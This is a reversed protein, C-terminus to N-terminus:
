KNPKNQPLKTGKLQRTKVQFSEEGVNVVDKVEGSPEEPSELGCSCLLVILQQADTLLATGLASEHWCGRQLWPDRSSKQGASLSHKPAADPEAWCPHLAPETHPVLGRGM